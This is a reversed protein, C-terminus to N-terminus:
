RPCHRRRILVLIAFVRHRNFLISIADKISSKNKNGTWYLPMLSRLVRWAPFLSRWFLLFCFALLLVRVVGLHNNVVCFFPQM